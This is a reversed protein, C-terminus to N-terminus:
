RRRLHGTAPCYFGYRLYERNRVKCFEGARLCKDGWSLHALVYSASCTKTAALPAPAASASALSGAGAVTTLLACLLALRRRM